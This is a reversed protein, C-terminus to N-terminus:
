NGKESINKLVNVLNVVNANLVYVFNVVPANMTGVVQGLLIDKTPLKAIQEIEIGSVLEGDLFGWKIEGKEKEKMFDDVIKASASIDGTCFIVANEGIFEKSETDVKYGADKLALKFLTNKVIRLSSNEGSLKKRLENAENPTLGTPKITILGKADTLKATYDALLSDKQNKTKAM